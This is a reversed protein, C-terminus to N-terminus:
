GSTILHEHDARGDDHLQVLLANPPEGTDTYHPDGGHRLQRFTSPAGLFTIGDAVTKFAQHVHGSLVVRVPSDRLAELLRDSNTLGCDPQPCPSLPPHHVCLVVHSTVRDLDSALRDLVIDPIHGADHGVWQSNLLALTWRPSLDVLRMARADGFVARMADGNDHNGAIIFRRASAQEILTDALRYAEETGDEAVDGTVVIADVSPLASMVAAVNAAPNRGWLSASPEALLHTDSLQGLLVRESQEPAINRVRSSRM